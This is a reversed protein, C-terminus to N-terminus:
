RPRDICGQLRGSCGQYRRPRELDARHDRDEVKQIGRLPPVHEFPLGNISDIRVIANYKQRGQNDGERPQRIAGVVADGKRLNYKKVQGLSVYVDNNGPLYGSTRVFAYNDLVDLIGAVPILVDDETIEPEFDDGIPGRGRKRDRYRGRGSREGDLDDQAIQQNRGGQNRGGDNNQRNNQRNNQGGEANQQAGNNQAGNNQGGNNQQGNQQGNRPANEGGEANQAGGSNNNRNRNRNRSNRGGSRETTEESSGDEAGSADDSSARDNSENNSSAEDRSASENSADNRSEPASADADAVVSDLGTEAQAVHAGASRRRQNRARSAPAEDQSKDPASEAAPAVTEAEPTSVEVVVPAEDPVPAGALVPAAAIAETDASTVRRSGRKRPATAVPAEAVEAAPAEVPAAEVAETTTVETSTNNDADHANIADVLEGKRLKSAGSIGRSSALAQLEALKLTSLDTGSFIDTM